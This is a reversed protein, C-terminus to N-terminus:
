PLLRVTDVTISPLHEGEETFTYTDLRRPFGLEQDYVVNCIPFQLGRSHNRVCEEWIRGFLSEITLASFDDLSCSTCDPNDAEVIQGNEVRLINIGGSPDSLSNSAVVIEYNRSGLRAWKEENSRLRSIFANTYLVFPSLLIILILVVSFGLILRRRM